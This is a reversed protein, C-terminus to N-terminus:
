QIDGGLQSVYTDRYVMCNDLLQEHTGDGVVMGDDLVIVKDCRMATSVRQTVVIQTKGSLKDVLQKRLRTETIYDLASFSDDFIYINANKALTRAICIRQKQGGSLNGGKETLVYDLGDPNSDVFDRIQVIDLLNYIDSDSMESNGMLINDRITGSFIHDKQLSVSVNNRIDSSAVSNYNTNGISINGSFGCQLALLLKVLTSKGSGTGGIIGVTSGQAISVSINHLTNASSNDYAFSVNDLVIDGAIDQATHEPEQRNPMNLVEEIRGISVSIWPVFDMFYAMSLLATSLLLVYQVIAAIDGAQTAVGNNIGVAAMYVMAVVAFNLIMSILPEIVNFKNNVVIIGETLEALADKTKNHEHEDKNFARIVRIGVMRERILLNHKDRHVDLQEYRSYQKRLILWMSLLILPATALMILAIQWSKIAILVVSGVFYIPVMVLICPINCLGMELTEIDNTSRTILGATGFENYQTSDLRLIKDVLQKRKTGSIHRRMTSILKNSILQCIVVAGAIALMVISKQWIYAMNGTAIGIDIIDSMTYPLLLMGVAELVTLLSVLIVRGRYLALYRFVKKLKCRINSTISM